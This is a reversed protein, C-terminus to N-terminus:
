IIPYFNVSERIVCICVVQQSMLIKFTSKIDLFLVFSFICIFYFLFVLWVLSSSPSINITFFIIELLVPWESNGLPFIVSIFLSKLFASFYVIINPYIVLRRWVLLLFNSMCGTLTHVIQASDALRANISCKESFYM